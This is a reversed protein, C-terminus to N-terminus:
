YILSWGTFPKLLLIYGQGGMYTCFSNEHSTCQDGLNCLLLKLITGLSLSVYTAYFNTSQQCCMYHQLKLFMEWFHLCWQHQAYGATENLTLSWYSISHIFSLQQIISKSIYSKNLPCADSQCKKLLFTLKILFTWQKNICLCLPKLEMTYWINLSM